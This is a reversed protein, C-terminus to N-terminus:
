FNDVGWQNRQETAQLVSEPLTYKIFSMVMLGKITSSGTQETYVILAAFNITSRCEFLTFVPPCNSVIILNHAHYIETM